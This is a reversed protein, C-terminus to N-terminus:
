VQDAFKRESRAFVTVAAAIMAATVAVSVALSSSTPAATGLVAWRFGGVASVMPNMAYLPEWEHPVLSAPYVVPSAFMWLQVVFPLAQAVDRYRVNVTALLIGAGLAVCTALVLYLPAMLITWRFDGQYIAILLLLLGSSVVVDVIHSGVAAIPLVIRPFYVKSILHANSVVSQSAGVLSQSFFTWPVLGCYVFLAYPEGDSPVRALRGLFIAFVAMFLLPQIIAWAVGFITQKYRVLLDRWMLFYVLEYSAIVERMPVMRRRPSILTTPLPRESSTM